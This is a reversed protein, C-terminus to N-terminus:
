RKLSDVALQVMAQIGPLFAEEDVRFHPSHNPAAKAVDRKLSTVGIHVYMGPVLMAFNAFDETGLVLQSEFVNEKGALAELTPRMRQVLAPDNVTVPNVPRILVEATTGFSEAVRNVIRTLREQMDRRMKQDFARITGQLTVQDPIINAHVGGHISGFSIVAPAAAINVQRSVITQITTLMQASITVPDIGDWPRAAHTGVGRVIIVVNDESAMAPGPRTAFQGAHMRPSTHLAFIADPKLDKFLGEELMLEAGSKEGPLAAEEAPQFVFMVTGSLQARIQNVVEAAGMLIATHADHGCAHMLGVQEGRYETTAKSAYPLGTMETVPLADMDARLAVIPGPRAGRLIGVVGTKGIGTRTEFGLSQLHAAVIGATRVEQLGLEPHQHFDKFWVLVKGEVARALANIDAGLSAQAALSPEALQGTRLVVLLLLLLALTRRFPIM